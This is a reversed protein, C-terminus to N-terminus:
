GAVWRQYRRFALLVIMKACKASITFHGGLGM